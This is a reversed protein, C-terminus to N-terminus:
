WTKGSDNRIEDQKLNMVETYRHLAQVVVATTLGASGWYNFARFMASNPWGGGKIQQSLLYGALEGCRAPFGNKSSRIFLEMAADVVLAPHSTEVKVEAREFISLLRADLIQNILITPLTLILYPLSFVPQYYLTGDAYANTRMATQLAQITAENTLGNSHLFRLVNVNVCPDIDTVTDDIERIWTGYFGDKQPRQLIKEALARYYSRNHNASQLIWNLLCTDDVDSDIGTNLFSFFSQSRQKTLLYAIARRRIIKVEVTKLSSLALVIMGTIFPSEAYTSRTMTLSSSWYTPFEGSARQSSVLYSLARRIAQAIAGNQKLTM